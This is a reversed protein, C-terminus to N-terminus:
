IETLGDNILTEQKLPRITQTEIEFLRKLQKKVNIEM